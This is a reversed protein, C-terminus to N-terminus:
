DQVLFYNEQSYILPNLIFYLPNSKGGRRYTDGLIGPLLKLTFIKNVRVKKSNILEQM